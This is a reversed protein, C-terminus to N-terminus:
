IFGPVGRNNIYQPQNIPDVNTLEPFTGFNLSMLPYGKSCKVVVRRREECPVWLRAGTGLLLKRWLHADKPEGYRTRSGESHNPQDEKRNWVLSSTIPAFGSSGSESSAGGFFRGSGRGIAFILPDVLLCSSM